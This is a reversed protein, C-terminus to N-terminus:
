QFSGFYSNSKYLGQLPFVYNMLYSTQPATLLVNFNEIFPSSNAIQVNNNPSQSSFGTFFTSNNGEILEQEYRM